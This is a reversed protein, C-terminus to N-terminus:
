NEQDPMFISTVLRVLEVYSAGLLGTLAGAGLGVPLALIGLSRWGLLVVLAAVAFGAAISAPLGYRSVLRLVPYRTPPPSAVLAAPATPQTVPTGAHTTGQCAEHATEAAILGFVGAKLLGSLYAANSGGELGGTTSGAALLGPIPRHAEDLVRAKEDIAVGGMTYTIGPMIPIAMFPGNAIPWPRIASSRTVPLETLRDDTLAKNYGLVTEELRDAPVGILGALEAISSARLVTGGAQELLPNAPIRASKGPENWIAQDFIAYFTTSGRATALANTLFVGGRGEDAIRRGTEDVVIGATAIADVEPYPWVADSHLADRCLIHGYFRDLGRTAAGAGIAMQLGAGIGTRAGRQFVREFDGGVHREYLERNAQFGGDALLVFGSPWTTEVGDRESVVGICRGEAMRLGTVREGLRLAGGLREALGRIVMDPGRERWDLGAKLSRPPAMCWRYGEQPNFRMFRAGKEQLWDLLRRGTEALARALAPDAEGSSVRDIIAVLEEAPRHPDHFALHVIGGSQRSNSPYDVGRGQELVAVSLGLEAARVGATLGALGGGVVLLDVQDRSAGL